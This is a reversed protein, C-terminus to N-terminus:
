EHSVVSPLISGDIMGVILMPPRVLSFLYQTIRLWLRVLTIIVLSLSVTNDADKAYM